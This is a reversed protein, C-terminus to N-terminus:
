QQAQRESDPRVDAVLLAIDDAKGTGFADLLTDCLEQLSEPGSRVAAELRELAEDLNGGPTELLGDTVVVLRFPQEIVHVTPEPQRGGFGLLPGHETLFRCEGDATHLVPPIHGANAVQIRQGGPEVLVLCVSVTTLEPHLKVLLTDLLRLIQAPAHGEVAYARLAHRMQGMVLAAELSHGVVDGIALLLGHETELAEYFDGGIETQLSAPVYRVALKAGATQPLQEPLFSRQLALALAHEEAYERLSELSLACSQALQLLLNFDDPTRLAAAPLAICIAPRGSKPRVAAVAVDETLSPVGLLSRWEEFGIVAVHAGRQRDLVRAAVTELMEGPISQTVLQREADLRTTRTARGDLSLYVGVTSVGLVAAVGAVAAARFRDVDAARYLDLTAHNLATLRSALREARTRARSHRLVAGVTALLEEPEIPEVLYADAGRHLGQTRDALAVSTASMHIVPVSATAPAAKIQECVELGTMDPLGVDIVAAEPPEGGSELAALAGAGDVAETVLYGARRLWSSVVYLNAANDDVVLIRAQQAITADTVATV